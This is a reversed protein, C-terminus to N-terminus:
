YDKALEVDCERILERMSTLDGTSHEVQQKEIFGRKKGKTKLYFITVAPNNGEKIMKIAANEVEDLVFDDIEEVAQAYEPCNNMWDYHTCRAIGAAKCAYTILGMHERLAQIM